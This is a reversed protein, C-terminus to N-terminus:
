LDDNNTARRVLAIFDADSMAALYVRARRRAEAEMDVVFEKREATAQPDNSLREATDRADTVSKYITRLRAIDIAM